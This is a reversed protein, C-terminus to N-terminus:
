ATAAARPAWDPASPRWSGDRPGARRAPAPRRPPAATDSWRPAATPSRPARRHCPGQPLTRELQVPHVGPTPSACAYQVDFAVVALQEIVHPRRLIQPVGGSRADTHGEAHHAAGSAPTRAVGHTRHTRMPAPRGQRPGLAPLPRAPRAHPASTPLRAHPAAVCGADRADRCGRPPRDRSHNGPSGARRDTRLELRQGM